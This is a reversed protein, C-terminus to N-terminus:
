GDGQTAFGCHCACISQQPRATVPPWLTLLDRRDHKRGAKAKCCKKEADRHDRRTPEDAWSCLLGPGGAAAARGAAGGGAMARGAGGGAMARGADGGAIARGAAGANRGAGGGCRGAM